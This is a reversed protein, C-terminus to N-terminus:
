DNDNVGNTSIREHLKLLKNIIAHHTDYCEAKILFPKVGDPQVLIKVPEIVLEQLDRESYTAALMAYSVQTYLSWKKIEEVGTVVHWVIKKGYYMSVAQGDKQM